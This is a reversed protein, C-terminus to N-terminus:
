PLATGSGAKNVGKPIVRGAVLRVKRPAARWIALISVLGIAVALWFALTYAGNWDYIAGFVWPGTAGGLTAPIGLAGFIAGYQRGQFLEMAVVGFVSAIGYGLAGQSAVMVYVLATASTREIALLSLYCIIFGFMSVTFAWERGVRDSLYGIGIQGVIGFLGVLGLAYAALDADYGAETLIKTQHVQVAYWTFLATFYGLALWWFRTTRAARAVTWDTAAWRADVINDAVAPRDSQPSPSAPDADPRLGIDEPRQRQFLINLPIIVTILLAALAWCAQRWGADDIMTQLWPFLTISGVGVGSFAIGIALGRRRVFWNPLFLSHGIYAIVVSGSVSLAGLTAYFHWPEIAITALVLGTSAVIAGAPMLWRPGFRDMLMGTLPSILMSAIFGASFIGSVTARSWGFEALIPPLLLSFATRANVGIAMTVFAVAIVVWGYFFPLRALRPVSQPMATPRIGFAENILRRAGM